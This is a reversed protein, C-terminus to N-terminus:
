SIFWKRTDTLLIKLPFNTEDNFNRILNSSIKLNVENGNKTGSKLQNLLSNSLNVNFTNYQTMKHQHEM